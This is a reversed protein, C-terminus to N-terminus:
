ENGQKKDVPHKQLSEYLQLFSGLLFAWSGWFTSVSEQYLNWSPSLLGFIPCLAFGFGGITNLLGIYWGLTSWAPKYYKDQTELMFLLGSVVFGGAGGVIQPVYYVGILAPMSLNNYIGPLATFGSIWFISAGFLQFSSALFGLQYIYHNRLEYMSPIWIWDSTETNQAKNALNRHRKHRHICEDASGTLKYSSTEVVREVAWGFCGERNENIAELVLLVSGLTFITSGIFATVGGWFYVEDYFETSPKALPLWVFSPNTLFYILNM